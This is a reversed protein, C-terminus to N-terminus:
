APSARYGNLFTRVAQQVVLKRRAADPEAGPLILRLWLLPDNIMGIFQQTALLSDDMDLLGEEIKRDLYAKVSRVIPEKGHRYFDRPLEPFRDEEMIVLRLFARVVPPAWHNAIAMGIEFLSADLDSSYEAAVAMQAIDSSPFSKWIDAIVARFLAEKSSYQNYLTRRVVGADLAVQDMSTKEFGDRLFAERAASLIAGRKASRPGSKATASRESM